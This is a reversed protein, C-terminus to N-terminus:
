WTPIVAELPVVCRLVVTLTWTIPGSKVIVVFVLVSLMMWPEDEVAVIVM